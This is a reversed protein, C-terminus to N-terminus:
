GRGFRRDFLKLVGMVSAAEVEMPARGPHAPPTAHLRGLWTNLEDSAQDFNKHTALTKYTEACSLSPPPQSPPAVPLSKCCGGGGANGGCCGDPVTAGSARIAALSRCFLGSKPDSQCQQCTGPGNVCPNSPASSVVPRHMHNPQLSPLKRSPGDTDTDSLPPTVENLLPALRNEVDRDHHSVNAAIAAAEACMCYTGDECFGCSEGPPRQNTHIVIEQGQIPKSSFQATFDIELPTSPESYRQRKEQFQEASPSIPRKLEMQSIDSVAKITEELCECRTDPTCKGCGSSSIVMAQEVCACNSTSTCSGCGLHEPEPGPQPARASYQEPEAARPESHRLHRPPLPVADTGTTQAGNRLYVLEALAAEKEKREYEAIRDLTDCRVRWSHIEGSFREIEAELKGIKSRLDAERRQHDNNMEELQEELEGVRAARRERFARQAARNQAKRKTPPTDTAPKRGPKPRPPIIWEKRTVMTPTTGAPPSCANMNAANINKIALTPPAPAPAIAAPSGASSPTSVAPSAM